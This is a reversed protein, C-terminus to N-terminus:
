YFISVTYQIVGTTGVDQDIIRDPIIVYGPTFIGRIHIIVENM